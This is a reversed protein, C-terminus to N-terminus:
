LLVSRVLNCEVMIEKHLFFQYLITYTILLSVKVKGLVFTTKLCLNEVKKMSIVDMFQQIRKNIDDEIIVDKYHDCRMHNICKKSSKVATAAQVKGM